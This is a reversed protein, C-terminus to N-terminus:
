TGKGLKFNSRNSRTSLELHVRVVFARLTWGSEISDSLLVSVTLDSLDEITVGQVRGPHLVQISIRVVRASSLILAGPFAQQIM